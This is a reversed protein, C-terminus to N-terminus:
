KGMQESTQIPQKGELKKEVLLCYTTTKEGM